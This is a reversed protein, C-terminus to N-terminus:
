SALHGSFLGFPVLWAPQLCNCLMLSDLGLSDGALCFMETAYPASFTLFSSDPQCPLKGPPLHTVQDLSLAEGVEM